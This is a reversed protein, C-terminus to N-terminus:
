VGAWFLWIKSLIFDTDGNIKITLKRIHSRRHSKENGRWFRALNNDVLNGNQTRRSKRGRKNRIESNKPRRGDTGGGTGTSPSARISSRRSLAGVEGGGRACAGMNTDSHEPRLSALPTARARQRPVTESPSLRPCQACGPSLTNRFLSDPAKCACRRCVTESPPLAPRTTLMGTASHKSPLSSPTSHADVSAPASITRPLHHPTQRSRHRLARCHIRGKDANTQQTEDKGKQSSRLYGRGVRV